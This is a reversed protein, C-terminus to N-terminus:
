INENIQINKKTYENKQTEKDICKTKPNNMIYGDLCKKRFDLEPCKKWNLISYCKNPNSETSPLQIFIILLFFINKFTKKMFYLESLM